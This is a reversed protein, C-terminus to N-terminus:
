AKDHRAGSQPASKQRHSGELGLFILLVWHFPAAKATGFALLKLIAKATGFALLKLIAKAGAFRPQLWKRYQERKRRSSARREWWSRETPTM